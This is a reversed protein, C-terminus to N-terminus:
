QQRRLVTIEKSVDPNVTYSFNNASSFSKLGEPMKAVGASTVAKYLSYVSNSETQDDDGVRHKVFVIM